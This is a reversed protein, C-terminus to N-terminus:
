TYSGLCCPKEFRNHPPVGLQAAFAATVPASETVAQQQQQLSSHHPLQKRTAAGALDLPQQAYNHFVELHSASVHNLAGACCCAQVTVLPHLVCNTQTHLAALTCYAAFCICLVATDHNGASM